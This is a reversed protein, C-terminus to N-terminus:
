AFSLNEEIERTIKTFGCLRMAELITVWTKPIKGAGERWRSIVEECCDEATNHRDEVARIVHADLGLCGAFERWKVTINPMARQWLEQGISFPHDILKCRYRETERQICM